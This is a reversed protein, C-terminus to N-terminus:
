GSWSTGCSCAPTPREIGGCANPTQQATIADEITRKHRKTLPNLAPAMTRVFDRATLANSTYIVSHTQLVLQLVLEHLDPGIPHHAMQGVLWFLQRAERREVLEPLVSPGEGCEQQCDEGLTIDEVISDVDRQDHHEDRRGEQGDPADRRLLPWLQTLFSNLGDVGGVDAPLVM